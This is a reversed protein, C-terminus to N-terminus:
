NLTIIKSVAGTRIGESIWENVRVMLKDFNTQAVIARQYAPNLEVGRLLTDLEQEMEQPPDEGREIFAQAEGRLAQLRQLVASAETDETMLENSRKLAQYEASQGIQRGLDKAKEDLMHKWQSPNILPGHQVANVTIRSFTESWRRM